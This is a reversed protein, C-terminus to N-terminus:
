AGVTTTTLEGNGQFTLSAEVLGDYSTNITRGTVIATGTLKHAGAGAGEMLFSVTVSSGIACAIQGNTDTDDFLVDASATWRKLSAKFTRWSDGMVSDDNTDSQQEVSWSRVEAMSSVSIQIIGANGSFTAM